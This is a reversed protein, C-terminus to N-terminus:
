LSRIEVVKSVLEIITLPPAVTIEDVSEGLIIDDTYDTCSNSSGFFSYYAYIGGPSPSLSASQYDYYDYWGTSVQSNCPTYVNSVYYTALLVHGTISQYDSSGNGTASTTVEASLGRVSNSQLALQTGHADVLKTQVQVYSYYAGTPYDVQTTAYTSANNSPSDYYVATYGFSTQAHIGQALFLCCASVVLLIPLHVRNM